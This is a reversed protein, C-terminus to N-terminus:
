GLFTMGADEKKDDAPAEKKDDEPKVPLDPFFWCSSEGILDHFSLRQRRPIVTHNQIGRDLRPIVITPTTSHCDNADHFSQTIKSEGIL